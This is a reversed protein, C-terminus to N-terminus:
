AMSAFRELTIEGQMSEGRSFELLQDVASRGQRLCGTSIAGAIHPLLIVNPLSRFPSDAVPPEPSTVDLIASIRGTSLEAVLADEDVLMGRATNIFIADDKMVRFERAGLMHRLQPLAPAHLSVVDSARMLQDLSVLRVGLEDAERPSLTPDSVLVEADFEALLRLVHRGTRSAGILGITVDYLERVRGFGRAPLAAQWAGSRTLSACPFFGKLGAIIVGLTTEAVGKGLADNATAIRIGSQWISDPIFPRISGASHVVVELQPAVALMAETIPPSDWGTVVAHLDAAHASWAEDLDALGGSPPYFCQFHRELRVLDKRSFCQDFMPKPLHFLVTKRSGEGSPERGKAHNPSATAIM